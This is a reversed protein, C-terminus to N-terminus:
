TSEVLESTSEAVGSTWEALGNTSEVLESTSEPLEGCVRRWENKKTASTCVQIGLVTMAAGVCVIIAGAAADGYRDIWRARIARIGSHAATVLFVMTAITALENAVIM